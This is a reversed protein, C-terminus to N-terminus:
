NEHRFLLNCFMECKKSFDTSMFFKGQAYRHIIPRGYPAWDPDMPTQGVLSANSLNVPKVILGKEQQIGRCLIVEQM